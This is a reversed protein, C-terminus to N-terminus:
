TGLACGDTLLSPMWYEMPTAVYMGRKHIETVANRWADIDGFHHDLLTLDVPSYSDAAWPLNMFASGAVYIGRMGMGQIYDLTDTLGQVDGGHRLQNGMLDHEFYTGNADSTCLHTLM